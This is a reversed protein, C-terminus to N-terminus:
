EGSVQNAAGAKCVARTAGALVAGPGRGAGISAAFSAGSGGVALEAGALEADCNSRFEVVHGDKFPGPAPGGNM